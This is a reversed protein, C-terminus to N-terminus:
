LQSQAGGGTALLQQVPAIGSIVHLATRLSFAVGELQRAVDRLVHFSARVWDDPNQETWGPQPTLLPYNRAIGLDFGIIVAALKDRGFRLVCVACFM